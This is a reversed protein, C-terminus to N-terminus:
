QKEPQSKIAREKRPLFAQRLSLIEKLGLHAEELFKKKLDLIKVLDEVAIVAHDGYNRPIESFLGCHRRSVGGRVTYVRGCCVFCRISCLETKILMVVEKLVWRYCGLVGWSIRAWGGFGGIQGNPKNERLFGGVLLAGVLDTVEESAEKFDVDIIGECVELKEGDNISSPIM